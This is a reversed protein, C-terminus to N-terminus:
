DLCTSLVLSSLGQCTFSLTESKAVLEQLGDYRLQLTKMDTLPQLINSRLLRAGMPTKTENLLGFLSEKSRPNQLNQILELCNITSVDIVMSGESPEYRIRLTHMPFTTALGAEIYQLVQRVM